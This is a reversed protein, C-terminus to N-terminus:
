HAISLSQGHAFSCLTRPSVPYRIGSACGQAERKGALPSRTKMLLVAIHLSLARHVLVFTFGPGWPQQQWVGPSLNM